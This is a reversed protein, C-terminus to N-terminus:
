EGNGASGDGDRDELLLLIRLLLDVMFDRRTYRRHVRYVRTKEKHNFWDCKVTPCSERRQMTLCHNLKDNHRQHMPCGIRTCVECLCMWCKYLGYKSENTM